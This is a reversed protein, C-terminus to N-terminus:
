GNLMLEAKEIIDKEITRLDYNGLFTIGSARAHGGGGFSSALDSVNIAENSRLNVRIEQDSIERILIALDVNEIERMESCLGELDDQTGKNKELYASEVTYWILNGTKNLKLNAYIDGYLRLQRLPREGFLYTSILNIDVNQSMLYACIEFTRRSTNSYRLGGTDAYIGALLVKSIDKNLIFAKQNLIQNEEQFLYLEAVMESVSSRRSELWVIVEKQSIDFRALFEEESIESVRHHDIILIDTASFKKIIAERQGLRIPENHDIFIILDAEKIQFLLDDSYVRLDFASDMFELNRPLQEDLVIMTQHGLQELGAALGYCSGLADADVRVHPLILIHQPSIASLVNFIRNISGIKKM